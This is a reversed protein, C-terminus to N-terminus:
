FRVVKDEISPCYRPGASKIQGNYMPARHKNALILRHAEPTTYTVGCHVQPVAIGPSLFSFPEPPDDGPQLDLGAWDITRGDLRPPTGTKLRGLAFGISGLTESLKLAPAEGIRGAPIRAEGRHIIGNLFTGTTLVVAGASVMEGSATIVGTVRSRDASLALDEIGCAYITLNPQAALLEQIARKYLRRDAQARFASANQKAGDDVGPWM